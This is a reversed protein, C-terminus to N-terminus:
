NGCDLPLNNTIVWSTSAQSCAVIGYVFCGNPDEAIVKVENGACAVDNITFSQGSGLVTGNLLDLSWNDRDVPSVYLSRIERNANNTVTISMASTAPLARAPTTWAGSIALLVVFLAAILVNLQRRVIAKNQKKM